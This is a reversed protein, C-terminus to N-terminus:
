EGKEGHLRVVLILAERLNTLGLLAPKEPELYLTNELLTKEDRQEVMRGKLILYPERFDLFQFECAYSDTLSVFAKGIEGRDGAVSVMGKGIEKASSFGFMGLDEKAIGYKEISALGSCEDDRRDRDRAQRIITNGPQYDIWLDYMKALDELIARVPRPEQVNLTVPMKPPISGAVNISTESFSSLLGVIERIDQNEITLSEVPADLGKHASETDQQSPSPKQAPESPALEENKESEVGQLLVVGLRFQRPPGKQEKDALMGDMETLLKRVEEHTEPIATLIVANAKEDAVCQEITFPPFNRLEQHSTEAPNGFDLLTKYFPDELDDISDYKLFGFATLERDVLAKATVPTMRGLPYVRTLPSYKAEFEELAEQNKEALLREQEKAAEAKLREEIEASEQKRMEEERKAVIKEYGVPSVQLHTADVWELNIERRRSLLASVADKLIMRHLSNPHKVPGRLRKLYDISEPHGPHEVWEVEFSYQEAVRNLFAELTEGPAVRIEQRIYRDGGDISPDLDASVNLMVTKTIEWVSKVSLEFRGFKRTVGEVAPMTGTSRDVTNELAFELYENGDPYPVPDESLRVKWENLQIPTNASVFLRLYKTPGADFFQEEPQYMQVVRMQQITAPSEDSIRWIKGVVCFVANDFYLYREWGKEDPDLRVALTHDAVGPRASTLRLFSLSDTAQGPSDAIKWTLTVDRYTISEGPFLNGQGEEKCGHEIAPEEQAMPGSHLVTQILFCLAMVIRQHKM